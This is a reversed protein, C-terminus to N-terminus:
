RIALRLEGIENLARELYRLANLEQRARRLAPAGAPPLPTLLGAVAARRRAREAELVPLLADLRVRQPSGDPAHRADEIAESWELVEQLFEPPMAREESESPGGLSRVLWDARREEDALIQFAGNLAATGDEARRRTEADGRAHVDPHLARSLALHRRRLVALDLPFGPELGFAEFPSPPRELALLAGCAECLLPTGLARGCAPCAAAAAPSEKM